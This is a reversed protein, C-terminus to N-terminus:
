KKTQSNANKAASGMARRKFGQNTRTKDSHTQIRRAADPTMPKPQTSTNTNTKTTDSM